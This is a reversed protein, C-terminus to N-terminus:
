NLAWNKNNTVWLINCISSFCILNKLHCDITGILCKQTIRKKAEQYQTTFQYNFKKSLVCYINGTEGTNWVSTLSLIPLSYWGGAVKGLTWREYLM